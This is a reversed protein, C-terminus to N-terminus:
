IFWHFKKRERGREVDRKMSQLLFQPLFDLNYVGINTPYILELTFHTNLIEALYQLFGLRANHVIKRVSNTGSIVQSSSLSTIKIAFWHQNPNRFSTTDRVEGAWSEGVGVGWFLVGCTISILSLRPVNTVVYKSCTWSTSHSEVFM